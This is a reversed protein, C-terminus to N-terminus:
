PAPDYPARADSDIPSGRRCPGRSGRSRSCSSAGTTERRRATARAIRGPSLPPSAPWGTEGHAIGEDRGRDPAAGVAERPAALDALWADPRWDRLLSARSAGARLAHILVPMEWGSEVLPRLRAFRAFLGAPPRPPARPRLRRYARWASEFYERM